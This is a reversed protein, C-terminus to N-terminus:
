ASEYHSVCQMNSPYRAVMFCCCLVGNMSISVGIIKSFIVAFSPQVGGNIIASLCGLVIFKWEPANMKMLRSFPANPLDEKEDQFSFQDCGKFYLVNVYFM